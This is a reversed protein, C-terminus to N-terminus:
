RILGGVSQDKGLKNSRFNEGFFPADTLFM